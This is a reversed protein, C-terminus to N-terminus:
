VDYSLIGYNKYVTKHPIRVNLEFLFFKIRRMEYLKCLSKLLSSTYTKVFCMISWSFIEKKVWVLKPTLIKLCFNPNFRLM